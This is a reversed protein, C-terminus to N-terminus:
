DSDEYPLEIDKESIHVVWTELVLEKEQNNLSVWASKQMFLRKSTTWSANTWDDHGVTGPSDESLAQMITDHYPFHEADTGTMLNYNWTVTDGVSAGYGNGMTFKTEPNWCGQLLIRDEYKIDITDAASTATKPLFNTDDERDEYTVFNGLVPNM